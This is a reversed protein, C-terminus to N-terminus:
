WACRETNVARSKHGAGAGAGTRIAFESTICGKLTVEAGTLQMLLDQLPLASMAGTCVGEHDSM